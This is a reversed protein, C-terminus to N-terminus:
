IGSSIVWPQTRVFERNLQNWVSDPVSFNYHIGSITQMLRGYRVGLGRRYVTKAQGINSRGYQGIPIDADTGLLCPMSAPWMMEAGLNEFVFRHVRDLEALCEAGSAHVGTSLELQAESFDTTINPHTLPSGLAQPHTTASLNGEPTIRLSEKEIGRQLEGLGQPALRLQDLQTQLTSDTGPM